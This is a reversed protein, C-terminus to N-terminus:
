IEIDTKRLKEKIEDIKENLYIKHNLYKLPKNMISLIEKIREYFKIQNELFAKKNYLKRLFYPAMILKFTELNENIILFKELFEIFEETSYNFKIIEFIVRIYEDQKSNNEIYYDIFEKEKSNYKSFLLNVAESTIYNYNDNLYHILYEIDEFEYNLNWIFTIKKYEEYFKDNYKLRYKFYKFLFEPNKECLVKLEKFDHDYNKISINKLYFDQLLGINDEFYGINEECFHHISIIEENINPLITKIIFQIFNSSEDKILKHYIKDFKIYRKMFFFNVNKPSKKIFDIFNYFITDNIFSEKLYQYYVFNVDNQEAYDLSNILNYCDLNENEYDSLAHVFGYTNIIKFNNSMYYKFADTFKGFDLNLMASLLEDCYVECRKERTNIEKMLNFANKYDSQYKINKTIDNVKDQYEPYSYPNLINSYLSINEIINNNIFNYDKKLNHNYKSMRKSYLYALKNSKYKDYNLRTLFNFVIEEENEYISNFDEYINNIYDEFADEVKLPYKDYLKFLNNLLRIRLDSWSKSTPIKIELIESKNPNTTQRHQTHRLSFFRNESLLFLYINDIIVQRNEDFDSEIFNLLDNQMKFDNDISSLKYSYNEKLSYLIDGLLTQRKLILKITLELGMIQNETYYLRSLLILKNRRTLHRFKDPIKFEEKNFELNDEFSNIWKLLYSTIEDIYIYYFIIYFQDLNNESLKEKAPNLQKKKLNELSEKGFISLVDYIKNTLLHNYDEIFNVILDHLSLLKDNIFTQYFLYTSLISDSFNISNDNWDIIEENSFKNLLEIEEILNINFTEDITNLLNEKKLEIIEFFSLIGLIKKSKQPMTNLKSNNFYVKYIDEYDKIANYSKEKILRIAMLCVGINGKSKNVIDIITTNFLTFGYEMSSNRIIKRMDDDSIIDLPFDTVGFDDLEEKLSNKYPNKLTFIFKINNNYKGYNWLESLIHYLNSYNNTYNDFIILYKKDPHIIKKLNITLNNSPFDIIIINFNEKESLEKAVEISLRTKGLTQKGSISVIRNNEITKILKKHITNIKLYNNKLDPRQKNESKKIFYELSQIGDFDSKFFIYYLLINEPEQLMRELESRVRWIINIGNKSGYEEIEGIYQPKNKNKENSQKYERYIYFVLDTLKPYVEKAKEICKKLKSKNKSLPNDFVKTQFGICKDDNKIPNTELAKQNHYRHIGNGQNFEYCFLHYTLDEFAKQLRESQKSEFDKWSIM